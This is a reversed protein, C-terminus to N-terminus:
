SQKHETSKGAFFKSCLLLCLQACTKKKLSHQQQQQEIGQIKDFQLKM